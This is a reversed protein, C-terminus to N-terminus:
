RPGRGRILRFETNRRFIRCEENCIVCYICNLRGKRSKQGTGRDLKNEVCSQVEGGGM